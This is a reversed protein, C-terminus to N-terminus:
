WYVLILLVATKRLSARSRHLKEGWLSAWGRWPTEETNPRPRRDALESGPLFAAPDSYVPGENASLIVFCSAIKKTRTFLRRLDVESGGEGLVAGSASEM